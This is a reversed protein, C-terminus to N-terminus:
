CQTLNRHAGQWHQKNCTVSCLSVPFFFNFQQNNDLNVIRGM